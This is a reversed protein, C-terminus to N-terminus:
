SHCSLTNLKALVSVESLNLCPMCKRDNYLGYWSLSAHDYMASALLLLCETYLICSLISLPSLKLLLSSVFISLSGMIQWDIHTTATIRVAPPQAQAAQKVM